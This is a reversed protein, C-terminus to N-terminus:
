GENEPTVEASPLGEADYEHIWLGILYNEDHAIRCLTSLIPRLTTILYQQIKHLCVIIFYIAHCVRHHHIFAILPFNPAFIPLIFEQVIHPFCLLRALSAFAPIGLDRIAAFSDAGRLGDTGIRVWYQKWSYSFWSPTVITCRVWIEFYVLGITYTSGWNINICQDARVGSPLAGVFDMLYGTMLPLIGAFVLWMVVWHFLLIFCPLITSCARWLGFVVLGLFGFNSVALRQRDARGNMIEQQNMVQAWIHTYVTLRTRPNKMHHAEFDLLGTPDGVITTLLSLIEEEFPTIDHGPDKLQEREEEYSKIKASKLTGFADVQADIIGAHYLLTSTLLITKNVPLKRRYADMMTKGKTEDKVAQELLTYYNEPIIRPRKLSAVPVVREVDGPDVGFQVGNVRVSAITKHSGPVKRVVGVAAIPVSKGSKFELKKLTRVTDGVQLEGGVSQYQIQKQQDDEKNEPKEPIPKEKPSSIEAQPIGDLTPNSASDGESTGRMQNRAYAIAHQLENNGISASSASESAPPKAAKPEGDSDTSSTDQNSTSSTMEGELQEINPEPTPTSPPTPTSTSPLTPTTTGVPAETRCENNNSAAHFVKDDGGPLLTPTSTSPPTSPPTPTTTVAPTETRCENSEDDGGSTPTTLTPVPTLTEENTVQNTYDSAPIVQPPSENKEVALLSESVSSPQPDSDSASPSTAVQAVGNEIDNNDRDGVTEQNQKELLKNSDNEVAKPSKNESLNETNPFTINKIDFLNKKPVQAKKAADIVQIAVYPSGTCICIGIFFCDVFSIEDILNRACSGILVPIGVSVATLFSVTTWCCLLLLSLRVDTQPPLHVVVGNELIQTTAINEGDLTDGGFVFSRLQLFDVFYRMIKKFLNGLVLMVDMKDCTVVIVNLLFTDGVLRVPDMHILRLPFLNPSIAVLARLPARVIGVTAIFCFVLIFFQNALQKIFYTNTFYLIVNVGDEPPVRLSLMPFMASLAAARVRETITDLLVLLTLSFVFGITWLPAFGIRYVSLFGEISDVVADAVDEITEASDIPKISEPPPVNIFTNVTSPNWELKQNNNVPLLTTFNLSYYAPIRSHDDPEFTWVLPSPPNKDLVTFKPIQFDQTTLQTAIPDTGTSIIGHSLIFLFRGVILPISLTHWLLCVSFRLLLKYKQTIYLALRLMSMAYLKSQQISKRLSPQPHDGVEAPLMKVLAVAASCLVPLLFLYLAILWFSHSLADLAYSSNESHGLVILKIRNIYNNPVVDLFGFDFFSFVIRKFVLPSCFLVFCQVALVYIAPHCIGGVLLTIARCNYDQRPGLDISSKKTEHASIRYRVLEDSIIHTTNSPGVEKTIQPVGEPDLVVHGRKSRQQLLDYASSLESASVLRDAIHYKNSLDSECAHPKTSVDSNLYEDDNEIAVQRDSIGIKPYLFTVCKEVDVGKSQYVVSYMMEILPIDGDHTAGTIAPGRLLIAKKTNNTPSVFSELDEHDKNFWRLIATVIHLDPTTIYKYEMSDDENTPTVGLLEANASELQERSYKLSSVHEWNENCWRWLIIRICLLIIGFGCIGIGLVIARIKQSVPAEIQSNLVNLVLDIITMETNSEYTNDISLTLQMVSFLVWPVIFSWVILFKVGALAAYCFGKFSRALSKNAMTSLTSISIAQTDNILPAGKEYIKTIRFQLRCVDCKTTKQRVIWVLMCSRHAYQMSGSCSCPTMLYGEQGRCIRCVDNNEDDEVLKYINGGELKNQNGIIQGTQCNQVVGAKQVDSALLGETHESVINNDILLFSTM